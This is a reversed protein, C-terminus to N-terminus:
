HKFINNWLITEMVWGQLVFCFLMHKTPIPVTTGNVIQCGLEAKNHCFTSELAHRLVSNLLTLLLSHSFLNPMALMHEYFFCCLLLYWIFPIKEYQGERPGGQTRELM